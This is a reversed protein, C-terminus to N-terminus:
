AAHSVAACRAVAHLVRRTRQLAACGQQFREKWSRPPALSSRLTAERAAGRFGARVCLVRWVGPASGLRRLQRSACSLAAIEAYELLEIIRQWLEDPMRVSLAM